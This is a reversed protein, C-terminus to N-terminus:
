ADGKGEQESARDLRDIEAAILAGARVLDERPSKPKWATIGWRAPWGVLTPDEIETGNFPYLMCAANLAYAAGAGSLEGSDHNDDHEASWGEATIQRQREAAIAEVGTSM